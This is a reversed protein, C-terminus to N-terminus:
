RRLRTRRRLREGRQEIADGNTTHIRGGWRRTRSMREYELRLYADVWLPWLWQSTRAFALPFDTPPIVSYSEPATSDRSV